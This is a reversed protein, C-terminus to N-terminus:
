GPPHSYGRRALALPQATIPYGMGEPICLHPEGDREEPRVQIMRPPFAQAQAVAAAFDGFLALRELNRETPYVVAIEGRGVMNLSETASAWFLHTNETADVALEVQGSGLDTLYFHTDFARAVTQRWHAFPVLRSLDLQWGFRALVPGLAGEAALMTRAALAEDATVARSLGTLLGTEELTERIAAIRAATDPLASPESALTAALEHDAPDVKGGPFVAMGGAFRMERARQVMLLEPPGGGSGHRFIVLTAAPILIQDPLSQPSPAM